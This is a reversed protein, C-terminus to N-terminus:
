WFLAFEQMRLSSLLLKKLESTEITLTWRAGLLLAPRRLSHSLDAPPRPLLGRWSPFRSLFHVRNKFHNPVNIRKWPKVFQGVNRHGPCPRCLRSRAFFWHKGPNALSPLQFFFESVNSHYGCKPPSLSLQYKSFVVSLRSSIYLFSRVIDISKLRFSVFCNWDLYLNENDGSEVECSWKSRILRESTLSFLLYLQQCSFLNFV